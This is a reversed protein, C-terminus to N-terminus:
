LYSCHSYSISDRPSLDRKMPAFEVRGSVEIIISLDEVAAKAHAVAAEKAGAAALGGLATDLSAKLQYNRLLSNVLARVDPETGGTGNELEDSLQATSDRVVIVRKLAERSEGEAALAARPRGLPSLPSLLLFSAGLAATNQRLSTRRSELGNRAATMTITTAARKPLAVFARTTAATALLLLLLMFLAPPRGNAGNSRHM